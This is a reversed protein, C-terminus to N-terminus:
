RRPLIDDNSRITLKMDSTRIWKDCVTMVDQRFRTLKHDESIGPVTSVM